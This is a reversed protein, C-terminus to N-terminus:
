AYRQDLTRMYSHVGADQTTLLLADQGSENYHSRWIGPPTVLVSGSQWYVRKGNIIEGQANVAKGVLTYIGPPADIVLDVAVSNPRHPKQADGAPLFVLLAWLTHTLSQTLQTEANGLLVAIRNRVVTTASPSNRAGLEQAVRKLEALLHDRAYLTPRFRPHTPTVGLYNLLVEDTVWYLATDRSASHIVPGCAPFTFLDGASWKLVGYETETQGAGRIVYCLQATARPYLNLTEGACIRLFYASLTPSIAPTTCQLQDSLDLPIIQTPGQQHLGASFTTCPIAPLKPAVAASFEYFLADASWQSASLTQPDLSQVM